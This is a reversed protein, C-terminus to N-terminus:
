RFFGFHFANISKPVLFPLILIYPSFHFFTLIYSSFICKRWLNHLQCIRLFYFFLYM